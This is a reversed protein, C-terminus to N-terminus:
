RQGRMFFRAAREIEVPLEREIVQVVAKNIRRANFMQPLDITEVGRIPMRRSGQRTFVTRGKNGIFVHAILKRGGGRKISVSVGGGVPVDVMRWKGPAILVRVRKTRGTNVQKAKFLMVNRSRHGRRRPFAEIKAELRTSKASARSISIQPNVDGAKVDFEARIRRGAETKGKAAVKNMAPALVMDRMERPVAKLRQQVERFGRVNLTIM